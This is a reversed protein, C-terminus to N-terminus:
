WDWKSHNNFLFRMIFVFLMVIFLASVFISIAFLLGALHPGFIDIIFQEVM